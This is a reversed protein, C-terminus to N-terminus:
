ESRIKLKLVQGGRGREGLFIRSEVLGSNKLEALAKGGRGRLGYLSYASIKAEASIETLTRWGSKEAPTRRGIHAEEFAKSLFNFAREASESEFEFSGTQPKAISELKSKSSNKRVTMIIPEGETERTENLDDTFSLLPELKYDGEKPFVMKLKVTEVQFAGIRKKNFNISDNEIQCIPSSNTVKSGSPVLGDVRLLTGENKAVNVLDIRMEFEEGVQVKRPVLVSLQVDAHEFKGEAGKSLSLTRDRQVKADEFRGQRELAWAYNRRAVLEFGRMRYKELVALLEEFSENSEKWRAKAALYVGKAMPCTLALNLNSLVESPLKSMKEFYEDAHKLDGLLSYQRTLFAYAIGQIWKADTKESYELGKLTQSLAVTLKGQLEDIEGIYMSALALEIFLGSKEGKRLVNAHQLRAESFLGVSYFSTGTWRTAEIERSVDGLEGLIAVSRLLKGLGEKQLEEFFIASISGSRCMTESVDAISNEEEFVQLAANNDTLDLKVDGRGSWGFAKSRNSLVRAMELRDNVGLEEAKRVYELLLDPEDGQAYAADMAKRLARLRVRGKESAALEDFTKIAENYRSNAAYADGLGELATRKEETQGEDLNQLVYQFHRIAQANSWKALEDKAAALAFKIAKEKNGAQAYHYALDGLLPVSSKASELTRAVKGHYGRKLPQALAEYIIERSRAHDFRYHNEDPRVLSTSSAIVNLTEMIELSDEEVVASLLGVEFEEGIVSAADLLRRQAHNLCALRQLMIDKFKSPIGLQDVALRWENNEKALGNRENLMRLSEVVFLPNGESEAALREALRHEICGGLMSEAIKAVCSESLCPLNIQIFLDERRMLALTEVLQHPYGESDNTLEESRFTALVIVKESGNITRAIYHLLALSASDAWHVDEILLIVPKETAISHITKAVAAFTQDKLAQPSLYELKNSLGTKAPEKLWSSIELEEKSSREGLSSYYSNFAEIFPFYPIEANFLCWGSLTVITKEQKVSNLFERMLRTKGVGAEASIFITKGKGEKALALYRQLEELEKERGVM